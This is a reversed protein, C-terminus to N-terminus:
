VLHTHDVHTEPTLSKIPLPVVKKHTNGGLDRCECVRM